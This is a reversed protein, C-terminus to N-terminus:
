VICGGGTPDRIDLILLEDGATLYAVGHDVIGSWISFSLAAKASRM